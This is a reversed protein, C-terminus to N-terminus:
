AFSSCCHKGLLRLTSHSGSSFVALSVRIVSRPSRIAREKSFQCKQQLSSDRTWHRAYSDYRHMQNNIRVAQCM